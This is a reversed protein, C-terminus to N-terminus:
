PNTGSFPEESSGPTPRLPDVDDGASSAAIPRSNAAFRHRGSPRRDQLRKAWRSVQQKRIGTQEEADAVSFLRLDAVTKGRGACQNPTVADRWWGVFSAQEQIKLRLPDGDDGANSSAIM